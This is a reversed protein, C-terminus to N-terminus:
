VFIESEFFLLQHTPPCTINLKTVLSFFRVREAGSNVPFRREIYALELAYKLLLDRAGESKEQLNRLETRHQQINTLSNDYDKAVDQGYHKVLFQKLSKYLDLTDVKKMELPYIEM